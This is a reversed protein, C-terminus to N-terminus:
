MLGKGAIARMAEALLRNFAQLQEGPKADFAIRMSPNRHLMAGADRTIRRLGIQALKMQQMGFDEFFERWLAECELRAIDPLIHGRAANVQQRKAGARPKAQASLRNHLDRPEAIGAGLKIM